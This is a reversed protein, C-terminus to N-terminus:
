DGYSTTNYFCNRNIALGGVETLSLLIITSFMRHAGKGKGEQDEEKEKGVTKGELIIKGFGESRKLHGFYKLKQKKIFDELWQDEVKLEERVSKSTKHEM